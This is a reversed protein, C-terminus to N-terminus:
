HRDTHPQEAAPELTRDTVRTLKRADGLSRLVAVLTRAVSNWALCTASRVGPIRRICSSTQCSALRGGCRQRAQATSDSNPKPAPIASKEVSFRTPFLKGLTAGREALYAWRFKGVVLRVGRLPTGCYVPLQKQRTGLDPPKVCEATLGVSSSSECVACRNM